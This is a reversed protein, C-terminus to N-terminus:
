RDKNNDSFIYIEDADNLAKGLMQNDGAHVQLSNKDSYVVHKVHSGPISISKSNSIKTITYNPHKHMYVSVKESLQTKQEYSDTVDMWAYLFSGCIFLVILFILAISLFFDVFEDTKNNM